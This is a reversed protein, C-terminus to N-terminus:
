CSICKNNNKAGMSVLLKITEPFPQTRQVPGNAMDVTTQGERNVAKPDAGKSVLYLIMENDGRSAALHLPTNGEHDRENVDLGLEDVLYKVAALLGGPSYRHSNAAFGEAYGAGAAAHLPSIAPGGTPIEPLNSVDVMQRIDADGTRPRGPPKTTPIRPDAGYKVLLKMAEVDAGYAARWFPTAGVEDIGSLDFNYGSYWVKKNIRANPDAGKELLKQLFQLYSTKQDLHAPPNPFGSEQAWQLNIAAFLPAVGNSGAINPDAGRALLEVGLDFQGNVAAILLPSAHDGGKIQNVDVGADLLTRAAEAFGDRVAFHLPTMGGQGQVLENFFYQRELGPVRGRPPAAPGQRNPTAALGRGDPNSGDRSLAALDTVKTALNADAGRSLLLKVADLRNGATAFMLATHGREPERANVQAGGDLLSKIAATNGSTSALMLATTGRLTAADVEAGGKVLAQVVDANGREAAVHLPLYGGFRTAAQLNAGAVILTRAMEADGRSAAWHLATMGDGVAANVDAGQKLLARLTELEGNRAAEPVSSAAATLTVAFATVAAVLFGGTLRRRM